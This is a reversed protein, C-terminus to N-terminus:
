LNWNAFVLGYWSVMDYWIDVLWVPRVAGYWVYTLQLYGVLLFLAMGYSQRVVRDYWLIGIM